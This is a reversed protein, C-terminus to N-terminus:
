SAFIAGGKAKLEDTREILADAEDEDAIGADIFRRMAEYHLRHQERHRAWRAEVEALTVIREANELTALNLVAVVSASRRSIVDLPCRDPTRFRVAISAPSLQAV